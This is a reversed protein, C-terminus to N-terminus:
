TRDPASETEIFSRMRKYGRHARVKVASVSAGVIAAIEAFPREEIWHLEIAIRQDTTLMALAKRVLRADNEAELHDHLEFTPDGRGDLSLAGERQRARRRFSDRVLNMAITFVWPRLKAGARFDNRARHLSLFTRQVVDEAEVDDHLRRRAVNRLVPALRDFIARHADADGAVYAAMLEEDSLDSPVM